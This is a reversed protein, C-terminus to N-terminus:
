GYRGAAAVASAGYSGGFLAAHVLLPFLQHLAVRDAWGDALPYVEDYAAVVRRHPLGFLALMALDSERHGGHAAPDVLWPRGDDDWHVNGSWLDGHLRAPPEPPGGVEGVRRAVSEVVRVGSADIAARDAALRLYPLLRQEAFFVPWEAQSTNDLPLPGIYGNRHWGFTPAGARHTQALARGLEEAGAPSPRGNTIWELVLVDTTVTLVAPTRVFGPEALWALGEAEAEFLGPPADNLHKAFVSYGGALEVRHAACIDGGSVPVARTV